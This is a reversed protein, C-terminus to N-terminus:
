SLTSDLSLMSLSATMLLAIGERSYARSGQEFGRHRTPHSPVRSVVTMARVCAEGNANRLM